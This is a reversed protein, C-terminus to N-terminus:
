LHHKLTSAFVEDLSSPFPDIVWFSDPKNIIQGELNLTLFDVGDIGVPKIEIVGGGVFMQFSFQINSIYIYFDIYVHLEPPCQKALNLAKHLESYDQFKSPVVRPNFLGTSPPPIFKDTM